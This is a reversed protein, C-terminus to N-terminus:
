AGVALVVGSPSSFERVLKFTVSLAKAMYFPRGDGLEEILVEEAAGCEVKLLEIFYNKWTRDRPQWGIFRGDPLTDVLYRRFQHFLETLTSLSQAAWVERIVVDEDVEPYKATASSEATKTVVSFVNTLRDHGLGYTEDPVRPYVIDALFPHRMRRGGGRAPTLRRDRKRNPRWWPAYPDFHANIYAAGLGLTAEDM